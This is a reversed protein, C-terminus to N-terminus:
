YDTDDNSVEFLAVGGNYMAVSSFYDIVTQPKKIGSLKEERKGYVFEKIGMANMAEYKAIESYYNIM